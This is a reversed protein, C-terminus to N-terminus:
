PLYLEKWLNNMILTKKFLYDNKFISSLFDITKDHLFPILSYVIYKIINKKYSNDYHLHIPYYSLYIFLEFSDNGVSNGKMCKYEDSYYNFINSLRDLIYLQDLHILIKKCDVYNHDKNFYNKIKIINEITIPCTIYDNNCIIYINPLINYQTAHCVSNNLYYRDIWHKVFSHIHNHKSLSETYINNIINKNPNKIDRIYFLEYYKSYKNIYCYNSLNSICTKYSYECKLKYSLYSTVISYTFKCCNSFLCMKKINTYDIYGFIKFYIELPLNNM